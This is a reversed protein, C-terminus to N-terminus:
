LEYLNMAINNNWNNNMISDYGSLLGIFKWLREVAVVARRDVM